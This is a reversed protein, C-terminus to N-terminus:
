ASKERKTDFEDAADLLHIEAQPGRGEVELLHLDTLRGLMASRHAITLDATWDKNAILLLEDLRRQSGASRKVASIFQRVADLEAPAALVRARLLGAEQPSLAEEGTADILPSPELALAWGEETLSVRSDAVAALGLIAMPGVAGATGMSITFSFIFREAAAREDKGVPFAVARRRNGIRQSAIDANRLRFGFERATEAAQRQFDKLPPPAEGRSLNALVRVAVKLPGFRNTLIFLTESSSPPAPAPASLVNTPRALNPQLGSNEKGRGFPPMPSAVQGGSSPLQAVSPEYDADIEVTLQNELAVEAFENFTSYGSNRAELLQHIRRGLRDDLRIVYSRKGM